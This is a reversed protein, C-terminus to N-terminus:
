TIPSKSNKATVGNSVLVLQRTLKSTTKATPLLVARRDPVIQKDNAVGLSEVSSFANKEM